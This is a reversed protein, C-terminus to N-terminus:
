DRESKTDARVGIELNNADLRSILSKSWWATAKALPARSLTFVARANDMREILLDEVALRQPSTMPSIDGLDPDYFPYVFLADATELLPDINDSDLQKILVSLSIIKSNCGRAHCGRALVMFLDHAVIGEGYISRGFGNRLEKRGEPTNIWINLGAGLEGFESLSRDFYRKGLGAKRFSEYAEKPLVAVTM